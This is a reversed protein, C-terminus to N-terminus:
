HQRKFHAYCMTPGSLVCKSEVVVGVMKLAEIRVQELWLYYMQISFIKLYHHQTPWELSIRNGLVEKQHAKLKCKMDEHKVKLHRVPKWQAVASVMRLIVLFQVSLYQKRRRSKLINQGSTPAARMRGATGKLRPSWSQLM